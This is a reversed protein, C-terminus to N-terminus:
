KKDEMKVKAFEEVIVFVYTCISAAFYVADMSKFLWLTSLAVLILGSVCRARSM